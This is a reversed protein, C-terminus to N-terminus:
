ACGGAFWAALFDFLDQVSIDGSWNFDADLTNAFWAALFEFLDQVGVSGGADFDPSSLPFPDVANLICDLDADIGMRVGSGPTTALFVLSGASASALLDSLSITGGSDNRFVPAGPQADLAPDYVFGVNAGSIIGRATVDCRSPTQHNQAIMTNIDDIQQQTVLGRVRVQWGVVNTTNTPFATVAAILETRQQANLNRFFQQLFTELPHGNTESEERGDHLLGPGNYIDAIFKKYLGRLQTIEQIQSFMFGLNVAADDPAGDNRLSGDHAFNHCGNCGLAFHNLGQIAAGDKPAHTRTWFPNPPYVVTKVFSDFKQMNAPSLQTGGLLSAFAGNFDVFEPKDGRWHFANHGKLGRLSQTVMPGKLPHNQGAINTPTPLMNADPDGLDWPLHDLNIDIHCSTCSSLNNQSFSTSYAFHRGERIHKPEPNFVRATTEVVPQAILNVRSVTSDTRNYTYLTRGSSDIALSRTGRGVKVRGIVRGNSMDIVGVRDSGGAAVYARAGSPSLVVDQLNSLAQPVPIPDVPVAGLGLPLDANVDFAAISPTIVGGNLNRVFVVEHQVAEGNLNPELRTLNHPQLNTLIARKNIPDYALGALTTGIGGITQEHVPANSTSIDIVLLDHDLTDKVDNIVKQLIEDANLVGFEQTYLAVMAPDPQGNADALIDIIAAWESSQGADPVIRAVKPANPQLGVDPWPALTSSNFTAATASFQKVIEISLLSDFDNPEGPVQPPFLRVIQNGAVTTNNGSHLASIFLRQGVPDIAAGRLTNGTLALQHVVTLTSTDITVLSSFQNFPPMAGSHPGQLVVYAMSGDPSFVINVPEDGVDIVRLVVGTSLDVVSVDDSIFNATWAIRDGTGPQFAVSVPDIGVPVNREVHMFAGGTNMITLMSAPTNAVLLRQGDASLALAKTAPSEFNVYAGSEIPSLTPLPTPATGRDSMGSFLSTHFPMSDFAPHSFSERPAIIAHPVTLEARKDRLGVSQDSRGHASWSVCVAASIGVVTGLHSVLRRPTNM